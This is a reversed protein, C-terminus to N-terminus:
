EEWSFDFNEINELVEVLVSHLLYCRITVDCFEEGKKLDEINGVFYELADYLLDFNGVLNGGAEQRSFTYSGSGNGTVSDEVFLINYIQEFSKGELYEKNEDIYEKIDNRLSEVYNYIM